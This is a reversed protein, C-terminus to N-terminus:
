TPYSTVPLCPAHKGGHLSGFVLQPLWPAKLRVPSYKCTYLVRVALPATAAACLQTCLSCAM